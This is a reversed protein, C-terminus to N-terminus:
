IGEGVKRRQPFESPSAPCPSPAQAPCGAGRTAGREAISIRIEQVHKRGSGEGISIAGQAQAPYLSESLHDRTAGQRGAVRAQGPRANTNAPHCLNVLWQD